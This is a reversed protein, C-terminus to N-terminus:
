WCPNTGRTDVHVYTSYCGIGGKFQFEYQGNDERENLPTYPVDGSPVRVRTREAEIPVHSKFWQGRWEKLVKCIEEPSVGKARFDVASFAQHQSCPVGGVKKNYDPARYVSCLYIPTELHARLKDLILLTPVINGWMERPPKTNGPKETSVLLEHPKFYRLQLNEIFEEFTM